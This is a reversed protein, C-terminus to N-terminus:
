KLVEGNYEDFTINKSVIYNAADKGVYRIHWPEYSYGTIDVKDSPYRIIFGFDKAHQKLWKGETTDGFSENLLYNLSKCSVDMALGTQHESQGPQAVSQNAKEFSGGVSKVENNFLREQTAYSRYGSVAALVIGDKQAQNFLEELAKAAIPQMKNKDINGPSSFKVKPMVLNKPAWDSPLNRKKNVLVLVNDPDKVIVKGNVMVTDDKPAPTPTTSITKGGNDTVPKQVPNDQGPIIKKNPSCAVILIISILILAITTKKV